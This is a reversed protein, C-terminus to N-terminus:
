EAGGGERWGNVRGGWGNVGELWEGRWGWGNVGGEGVM